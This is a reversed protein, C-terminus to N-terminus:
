EDEGKMGVVNIFTGLLQIRENDQQIIELINNGVNNFTIIHQNETIAQKVVDKTPLNYKISQAKKTGNVLLNYAGFILLTTKEFSRTKKLYEPVDLRYKQSLTTTGIKIILPEYTTESYKYIDIGDNVLNFIYLNDKINVYENVGQPKKSRSWCMRGEEPNPKFTLIRGEEGLQDIGIINNKDLKFFYIDTIDKLLHESYVSFENAIYRNDSGVDQIQQIRDSSDVYFISSDSETWYGLGKPRPLNQNYFESKEPTLADNLLTSYVGLDTLVLLSKYAIFDKVTNVENGSVFSTFGDADETSQRFNLSDFVRSACVVSPNAGINGFVVRGKYSCVVAPYGSRFLSEGFSIDLVNIKLEEEPTTTGDSKKLEPIEIEPKQRQTTTIKQKGTLNELKTIGFTGGYLSVTGNLLTDMFEKKFVPDSITSEFIVRSGQKYWKFVLKDEGTYQFESEVRKVPPNKINKWYEVVEFKPTREDVRIMIPEKNKSCIIVSNDFQAISLENIENATYKSAIEAVDEFNDMRVIKLKLDTFLFLYGDLVTDKRNIKYKFIKLANAGALSIKKFAELIPINTLGASFTLTANKLYNVGFSPIQTDTRFVLDPSIEGYSFRTKSDIM